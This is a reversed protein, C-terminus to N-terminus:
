TPKSSRKRSPRLSRMATCACDDWVSPLGMLWRSHAPNLQGGYVIGASSGTLVEGSVTLRAPGAMQVFDRLNQSYKAGSPRRIGNRMRQAQNVDAGRGGDSAQPTPWTALKVQGELNLTPDDHNGRTYSYEGRSVKPTQWSALQAQRPLQDLREWKVGERGEERSGMGPSDKWDRASPTTWNALTSAMGLNLGFGNGNQGKAKEAERREEWKKDTDGNQVTPTPWSSFANAVIRRASARLRFIWRGLETSQVKWTLDFLTSGSSETVQRLRNALSRALDDSDSSGFGHRGYIGHTLLDLERAQAASLNAHAPDPGYPDITPGAQKDSLTPGSGAEPLSTANFMGLLSLQDLTRSAEKM